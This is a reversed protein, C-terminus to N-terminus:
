PAIGSTMAIIAVASVGVFVVTVVAWFAIDKLTQKSM